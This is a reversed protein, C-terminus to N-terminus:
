GAARRRRPFRDPNATYAADLTIPFTSIGLNNTNNGGVHAGLYRAERAEWAQGDQTM